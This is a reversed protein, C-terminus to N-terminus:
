SSKNNVYSLRAFDDIQCALKLQPHVGLSEGCLIRDHLTADRGFVRLGEDLAYQHLEPFKEAQRGDNASPLFALLQELAASNPKDREGFNSAELRASSSRRWDNRAAFSPGAVFHAVEYPSQANEAFWTNELVQSGQGSAANALSAAGAPLSALAAVEAASLVDDYIRFDDIRGNLYADNSYQSRGLYNQTTSGLASPTLTMGSNRGVEVGNLFLIGTGGGLTVAVHTWTNAAIAVSSQIRQEGGNGSTTIAFVPLSTIGSRPTLFMNVSTSSGFDFIRTWNVVSDLRVWAALTVRTLESVVGNPLRVYDNTGDLDVANGSVGTTRLAGNVLTGTWGNGTADAASTGSSEDFKLHAHLGPPRAEASNLSEGSANTASVVYYFSDRGAVVVDSFSTATLGAAILAYPGGSTAARKVNYGAAGAVAAWSLDIRVADAINGFHAKWVLYDGDEITGNGNGDAGHFPTVSTGISDQWVTFDAADATGNGNYDGLVGISDGWTATLGAPFAPATPALIAWQQHPEGRYEYQVAPAGNALSANGLEISLGGDAVLIKFFGNGIPEIIFRRDAAGDYGWPALTLPEGNNDYFTSWSWNNSVSTISYQGAGRHTLSWREDAAGTYLNQEVTRNTTDAELALASHRNLIKYAGNAIPGSSIPSLEIWNLNFGGTPFELRIKQRGYELFVQKIVTTWSQVNGTNPMQWFGTKDKGNLFVRAVGETASAIRLRLNYIGPEAVFITYELWEGDATSGIHYGGGVDGTVEIDVGEEARLQGGQNNADSDHYAVGQGGLDFYEAEVRLTGSLGTTTRPLGGNGYIGRAVPWTGFDPMWALGANDVVDRFAVPDTFATGIFNPPIHQFSLWSVKLRELEAALEVDVVDVDTGWDSATFETMFVPYGANLISEVAGPTSKHGAYGHFAVAAKTWDISAAASVDAIDSVAQPGNGLVAFSFLLIPTDPALSRILTYADAEMDLAARPYPASWAHPENQIEFLVHAENKYRPAYFKWFDMVYDYNFSGNNGGNGITLVLYLGENRTMQVMQDIRSSAYGPATGSGAVGSVYNPDFVEGYLHIANAGYQKISQINALPPPAGWETSAFPGRLLNGNEAVFTTGAANLLPRGRPVAVAAGAGGTDLSAMGVYDAGADISPSLSAVAFADTSGSLLKRDELPELRLVRRRRDNRNLQRQRGAFDISALLRRRM